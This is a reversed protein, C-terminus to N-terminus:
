EASSLNEVPPVNLLASALALFALLAAFVSSVAPNIIFFDYIGHIMVATLVLVLSHLATDGEAPSVFVAAAKGVRIGCAGHLPAATVARLLALVIDSAAYTASEVVAFGMGCAFGALAGAGAGTIGRRKLLLLFPLLVAFRSLEEVLAVRIFVGFFLDNWGASAADPDPFFSQALAAIFLSALGAALAILFRRGAFGRSRCYLYGPIVPLAAVGILLLFFWLGRM